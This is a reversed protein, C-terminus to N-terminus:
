REIMLIFKELNTEIIGANEAYAEGVDGCAQVQEQVIELTVLAVV